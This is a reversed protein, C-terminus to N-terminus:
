LKEKCFKEFKWLYLKLKHRPNCTFDLLLSQTLYFSEHKHDEHHQKICKITCLVWNLKNITIEMGM